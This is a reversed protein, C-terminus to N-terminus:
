STSSKRERLGLYLLVFGVVVSALEVAAITRLQFRATLNAFVLVYPPGLMLLVGVVTLALQAIMSRGRLGAAGM